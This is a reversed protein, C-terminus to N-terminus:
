RSFFLLPEHYTALAIVLPGEGRSKMVRQVSTLSCHPLPHTPSMGLVFQALLHGEITVNWQWVNLVTTVYHLWGVLESYVVPCEYSNAGYKSSM